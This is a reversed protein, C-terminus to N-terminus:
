GDKLNSSEPPGPTVAPGHGINVNGLTHNPTRLNYGFQVQPVTQRIYIMALSYGTYPKTYM